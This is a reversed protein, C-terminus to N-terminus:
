CQVTRAQSIAAAADSPLFIGRHFDVRGPDIQLDLPSDKAPPLLGAVCMRM